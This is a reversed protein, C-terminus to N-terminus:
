PRDEFQRRGHSARCARVSAANDPDGRYMWYRPSGGGQSRVCRVGCPGAEPRVVATQLCPRASDPPGPGCLCDGTRGTRGTRDAPPTGDAPRVRVPSRGDRAGPERVTLEAPVSEDQRVIGAQSDGRRDARARTVAAPGGFRDRPGSVELALETM